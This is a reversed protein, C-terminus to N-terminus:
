ETERSGDERDGMLSGADPKRVRPHADIVDGRVLSRLLERKEVGGTREGPANVEDPEDVPFVSIERGAGRIENRRMRAVILEEHDHVQAVRSARSFDAPPPHGPSALAVGLRRRRTQLDVAPVAHMGRENGRLSGVAGIDAPDVSSDDDEVDGVLREEVAYALLDSSGAGAPGGTVGGRAGGKMGGKVGKPLKAELTLCQDASLVLECDDAAPWHRPESSGRQLLQGKADYLAWESATAHAPWDGSILIRLLASM